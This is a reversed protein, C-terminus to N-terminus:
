AVIEALDLLGEWHKGLWGAINIIRPALSEVAEAFGEAESAYRVARNLAKGVEGRNPEPKALEIEADELANGVKGRDPTDLRMLADRLGRVEGHIDVSEPPPLPAKPKAPTAGSVSAVVTRGSEYAVIGGKMVAKAVPRGVRAVAPLVVPGLLTVGLVIGINTLLNRKVLFEWIEM